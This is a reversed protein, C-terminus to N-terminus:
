QTRHGQRIWIGRLIRANYGTRAIGNKDKYDIIRTWGRLQEDVFPQLNNANLFSPMHDARYSPRSQDGKEGLVPRNSEIFYKAPGFSCFYESDIKPHITFTETSGPWSPSILQVLAERTQIGFQPAIIFHM